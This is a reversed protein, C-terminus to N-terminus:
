RAPQITTLQMNSEPAVCCYTKSKNPFSITLCQIRGSDCRYQQAVVTSVRIPFALLAEKPVHVGCGYGWFQSGYQFQRRHTNFSQSHVCCGNRPIALAAEQQSAAQISVRARQHSSDKPVEGESLAKSTQQKCKTQEKCQRKLINTEVKRSRGIPIVM